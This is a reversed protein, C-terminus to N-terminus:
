NIATQLSYDSEHVKWREVLCGVLAVPHVELQAILEGNRRDAPTLRYDSTVQSM